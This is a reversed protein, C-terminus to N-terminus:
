LPFLDIEITKYMLRFTLDEFEDVTIRSSSYCSLRDIMAQIYQPNTDVITQTIVTSVWNLGLVDKVCKRFPPSYNDTYYVFIKRKEDYKVYEILETTDALKQYEKKWQDITSKFLLRLLLPVKNIKNNLINWYEKIAAAQCDENFRGLINDDLIKKIFDEREKIRKNKKEEFEKTLREQEVPISNFINTYIIILDSINYCMVIKKNQDIILIDTKAQELM